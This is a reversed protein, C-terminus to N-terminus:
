KSHEKYAELLGTYFQNVSDTTKAYMQQFIVLVFSVLFTQIVALIWAQSAEKIIGVSSAWIIAPIGCFGLIALIIGFGFINKSQSLSQRYYKHLYLYHKRLMIDNKSTKNEEADKLEKRIELNQISDEIQNLDVIKSKIFYYFPFALMLVSIGIFFYPINEPLKQSTKIFFFVGLSFFLFFLYLFISTVTAERQLDSIAKEYDYNRAQIEKEMEQITPEQIFNNESMYQSVKLFYVFFIHLNPLFKLLNLPKVEQPIITPPTIKAM